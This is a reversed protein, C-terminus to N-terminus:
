KNYFMLKQKDEPSTLDNEELAKALPKSAILYWKGDKNALTMTDNEDKGSAVIEGNKSEDAWFRDFDVQPVYDYPNFETVMQLNGQNIKFKGNEVNELLDWDFFGHGGMQSSTYQPGEVFITYFVDENSVSPTLKEDIEALKKTDM